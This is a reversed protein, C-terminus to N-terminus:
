KELVANNLIGEVVKADLKTVPTIPQPTESFDGLLKEYHAVDRWQGLKFGVKEMIGVLRFGMNRHLKDSSPNPMTVKGHVSRIGQLELLALLRSYLAHGLGHGRCSCDLYVSLEVAWDYAAREFLRSAYAYGAATGNSEAVIYPYLSIREEIRRRFEEVSPIECEFTLSTDIYPAYIAQLAAADDPTALRYTFSKSVFDREPLNWFDYGM